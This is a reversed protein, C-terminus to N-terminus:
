ILARALMLRKTLPMTLWGFLPSITYHLVDGLAPDRWNSWCSRVFKM